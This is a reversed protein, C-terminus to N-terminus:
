SARTIGRAAERRAVASLEPHAAVFDVVAAVEFRTTDRLAWGIAKAVFFRRDAVHPECLARLLGVDTAPGLGRQHQISARILWQDDTGNWRWMVARLASERRVLQTIVASGWLDVTDWWPLTLLLQRVTSDLDHPQVITLWRGMLEVAAYHYERQPLAQLDACAALLEGRDPPPLTAWAARQAKRRAAAGIGLFPAIDKMYTAMAPARDNDRLPEFQEQVAM